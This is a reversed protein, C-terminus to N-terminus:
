PNDQMNPACNAEPTREICSHLTREANKLRVFTSRSLHDKRNDPLPRANHLNASHLLLSFPQIFQALLRQLTAPLLADFRLM